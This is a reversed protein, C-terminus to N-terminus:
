IPCLLLLVPSVVFLIDMSQQEIAIFCPSPGRRFPGGPGRLFVVPLWVVPLPGEPQEGHGLDLQCRLTHSSRSNRNRVSPCRLPLCFAHVVRRKSLSIGCLVCPLQSGTCFPPGFVWSTASAWPQTPSSPEGAPCKPCAPGAPFRPCGGAPCTPCAACPGKLGPEGAPCKPCAPGAPFRPCGGAPCTPCAACPGKLGPEGAPCKPCCFFFGFLLLLCRLRMLLSCVNSVLCM